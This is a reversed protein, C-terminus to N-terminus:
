GHSYIIFTKLDKRYFCATILSNTTNDIDMCRLVILLALVENGLLRILYDHSKTADAMREQSDEEREKEDRQAFSTLIFVMSVDLCPQVLESLPQGCLTAISDLTETRGSAILYPIIKSSYTRSAFFSLHLSCLAFLLSCWAYWQKTIFHCNSFLLPLSLWLCSQQQACNCCSIIMIMRIQCLKAAVTTFSCSSVAIRYRYFEKLSPQELLCYPFKDMDGEDLWRCVLESLMGELFVLPSSYGLYSATCQVM